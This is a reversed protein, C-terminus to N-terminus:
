AGIFFNSAMVINCKLEILMGEDMEKAIPAFKIGQVLLIGHEIHTVIGL